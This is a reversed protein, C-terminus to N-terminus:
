ASAMDALGAQRLCWRHIAGGGIRQQLWQLHPVDGQLVADHAGAMGATEVLVSIRLLGVLRIVLFLRLAPQCQGHEATRGVHCRVTGVREALQVQAIVAANWMQLPEGLTNMRVAARDHALDRMKPPAAVRIAIVPQLHDPWRRHALGAVPRDRALHVLMVDVTDDLRKAIRRRAALFAPKIADLRQKATV